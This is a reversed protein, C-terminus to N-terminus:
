TELAVAVNAVEDTIIRSGEAVEQLKMATEEAIIMGKEVARVKTM